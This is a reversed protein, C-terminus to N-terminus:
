FSRMGFFYRIYDPRLIELNGPRSICFLQKNLFTSYILTTNISFFVNKDAMSLKKILKQLLLIFNSIVYIKFM